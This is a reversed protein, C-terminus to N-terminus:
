DHMGSIISKVEELHKSSFSFPDEPITSILEQIRINERSITNSKFLEKYQKWEPYKHTFNKLDWQSM